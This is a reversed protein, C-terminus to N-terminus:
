IGTSLSRSHVSTAGDTWWKEEKKAERFEPNKNYTERLIKARKEREGDKDWSAKVGKSL